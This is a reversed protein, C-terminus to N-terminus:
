HSSMNVNFHPILDIGIFGLRGSARRLYLRVFFFFNLEDMAVKTAFLDYQESLLM